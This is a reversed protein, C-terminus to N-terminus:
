CTGELMEISTTTLAKDRFQQMGIEEKHKWDFASWVDVIAMGYDFVAIFSLIYIANMALKDSLNMDVMMM